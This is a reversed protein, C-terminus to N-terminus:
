SREVLNYYVDANNQKMKTELKNFMLVYKLPNFRESGIVLYDMDSTSFNFNTGSIPSAIEIESLPFKIDGFSITDKTLEVMGKSILKRKKGVREIYLEAKDNTFIPADTVKYDRVFRVQYNYWDILKTFKFEPDDSRLKLDETFEVKLGCSDCYLYNGESRLTQIKGCKPCVFFMRELYEAREESKYLEGSESDYVRLNDAILKYLEEDSLDKYEEYPLVKKIEGYYPGKRRNKAFRPYVGCGGHINILVITKKFFRIFKAFGDTFTFQFEAYTRNGEPYLLLSGGEKVCRIMDMNAKLDLAGKKKFIFGFMYNWIVAILGKSKFSDTTLAHVPKNFHLMAFLGDLDTQHNSLVVVSEGKKIKYKSKIKYHKLWAIFLIIPRHFAFWFSHRKKCIQNKNKM